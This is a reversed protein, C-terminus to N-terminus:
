KEIGRIPFRNVLYSVPCSSNPFNKEPFQNSLLKRKLQHYALDAHENM